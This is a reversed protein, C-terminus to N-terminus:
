GFLRRRLRVWPNRTRIRVRWPRATKDRRRLFPRARRLTQHAAMSARGFRSRRPPRRLMCSNRPRRSAPDNGPAGFALSRGPPCLQRGALPQRRVLPQKAPRVIEPTVPGPAPALTRQNGEIQDRVLAITRPDPDGRAAFHALRDNAVPQLAPDLLDISAPGAPGPQRGEVQNRMELDLRLAGGEALQPAIELDQEVPEATRAAALPAGAGAPSVRSGSPRPSATTRSSITSATDPTAASRKCATSRVATAGTTGTRASRNRIRAARVARTRNRAPSRVRHPVAGASGDRGGRPSRDATFSSRAGDARSRPPTSRPPGAPGRGAGRSHM